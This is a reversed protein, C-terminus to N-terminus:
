SSLFGTAHITFLIRCSHGDAFPEQFMTGVQLSTIESGGMGVTPDTRLVTDVAALITIARDRCGKPDLSGSWAIAACDLHLQEFQSSNGLYAWTQDLLASQYAGQWDGDFGFFVADTWAQDTAAPGDFVTFAPNTANMAAILQDILLGVHSTVIAM